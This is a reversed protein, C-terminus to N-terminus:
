GGHWLAKGILWYKLLLVTPRTTMGVGVAERQGKFRVAAQAFWPHAQQAIYSLQSSIPTLAEEGLLL